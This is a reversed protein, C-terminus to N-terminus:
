PYNGALRLAQAQGVSDDLSTGPLAASASAAPKEDKAPVKKSSGFDFWGAHASMASSGLLMTALALRTASFAM